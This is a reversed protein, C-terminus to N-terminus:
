NSVSDVRGLNLMKIPERESGRREREERHFESNKNFKNKKREGERGSEGVRERRERKEREERERTTGATPSTCIERPHRSTKLLRVKVTVSLSLLFTSHM